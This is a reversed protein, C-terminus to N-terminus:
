VLGQTPRHSRLTVYLWKIQLYPTFLSVTWSLTKEEAQSVTSHLRWQGWDAWTHKRSNKSTVLNWEDTLQEPSRSVHVKPSDEAIIQWRQLLQMGKTLTDVVYEKGDKTIILKTPFGWKYTIKHNRLAKSITNLNRRKQLTFQSLDAFFQLDKYQPPFLDKRRSAAM